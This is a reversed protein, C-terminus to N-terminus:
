KKVSTCKKDLSQIIIRQIDKYQMNRCQEPMNFERVLINVREEPDKIKTHFLDFLTKYNEKRMTGYTGQKIWRDVLTKRSRNLTDAIKETDMKFLSYNQFISIFNRFTIGPFDMELYNKIDVRNNLMTSETCETKGPGETSHTPSADIILNESNDKEKKEEILKELLKELMSHIIQLEMSITTTDTTAKYPNESSLHNLSDVYNGKLYQTIEKKFSIVSEVSKEFAEDSGSTNNIIAPLQQATKETNNNVLLIDGRLMSYSEKAYVTLRELIHQKDNQERKRLRMIATTADPPTIYVLIIEPYKRKLKFAEELSIDLIVNKGCEIDSYIPAKLTGYYLGLYNSYEFFADNNIKQVFEQESLFYYDQNPKEGPRKNRSTAPTAKIYNKNLSILSNVIASKGSASPGSIIIIKGQNMHEPKTSSHKLSPKEGTYTCRNVNKNSYDSVYKSKLNEM